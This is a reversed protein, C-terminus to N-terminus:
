LADLPCTQYKEPLPKIVKWEREHKGAIGNDIEWELVECEYKGGRWDEEKEAEKLAAHKKSFVGVLYSHQEKDGWRFAHVTYVKKKAM